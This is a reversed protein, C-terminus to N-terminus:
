GNLLVLYRNVAVYNDTRLIREAAPALKAAPDMGPIGPVFCDGVYMDPERERAQQRIVASKELFM